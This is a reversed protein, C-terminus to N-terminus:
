NRTYAFEMALFEAMLAQRYEKEFGRLFGILTAYFEYDNMEILALCEMNSLSLALQM